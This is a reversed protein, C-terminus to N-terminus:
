MQGENDDIPHEIKGALFDEPNSWFARLCGRTCFTYTQGNYEAEIAPADPELLGGCVTQRPQSDYAPM